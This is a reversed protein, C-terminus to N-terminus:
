VKFPSRKAVLDALKFFQQVTLNDPQQIVMPLNAKAAQYAIEPAPTFVVSISHKYIQQVMSLSMQLETRTRNYMITNLRSEGFGRGVLEEALLQSRQVVLAWPELPILVENCIELVKDTSASIGTGLDLVVYHASHALHRAIAEFKEVQLNLKVDTPKFSAMLAKVESKHQILENDIDQATIESVKKSLLRSLGEPNLYGLDYALSGEGPRLEAITVSKKTRIQLSAALNMAITTCGVGSKAGLVGIVYGRERKAVPEAQVPTGTKRARLLIAKVHAFLERPQTPKTLYDDVGSEFGSVKDDVQSKATFMIIPTLQTAPMARLQRTVEYGDMDPMMVDLIILDPNETQAMTLAQQGNNAAVIQYGQRQLMLGVLRLTDVDDDVVLIKEAM